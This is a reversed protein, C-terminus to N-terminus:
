YMTIFFWECVGKSDKFNIDAGKKILVQVTGVSGIFTAWHLSTEQDHSVFKLKTLGHIGLWDIYLNQFTTVYSHMM